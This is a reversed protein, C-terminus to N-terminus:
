LRIGRSFCLQCVRSRGSKVGFSNHEHCASCIASEGQWLRAGVSAAYVAMEKNTAGRRQIRRVYLSSEGASEASAFLRQAAIGGQVTLYIKGGDGLRILPSPGSSLEVIHAQVNPRYVPMLQAIIQDRTRFKELSVGSVTAARLFERAGESLPPLVASSEEVVM